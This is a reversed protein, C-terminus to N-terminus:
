VGEPVEDYEPMKTPPTAMGRGGDVGWFKDYQDKFAQRVAPIRIYYFNEFNSNFATGTLNGAGCFVAFPKKSNLYKFTLFKNHHLLHSHHNTEMYKVQAGDRVLRQVNNYEWFGNDGVKNDTNGVWFIDDDVVLRMKTDEEYHLKNGLSRLLVNYSLRHAGIDIQDARRISRQIYRTARQGEGPIFFTKIDYEERHEINQKCQYIFDSYKRKSSSHTRSLQGEMLCRHAEVFYQDEPLTIFHWNEHHLVTGSSMNGSSFAIRVKSSNPNVFFLKNHAYGIGGSHGRQIIKPFIDPNNKYKCAALKDAKTTDSSEDIVVTIKVGREQSAECLANVVRSNSFSLYALFLEKVPINIGEDENRIWDILRQQPSVHRTGSKNADDYTCFVNKSKGSRWSKGDQTRISDRYKYDACEPNTFLVEYRDYNLKAGFAVPAFFGIVLVSTIIQKLM